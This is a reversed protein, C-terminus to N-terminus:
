EFDADGRGVGDVFTSGVDIVISEPTVMDKKLLGPSGAAVIIIDAKRTIEGLNKTSSNCSM